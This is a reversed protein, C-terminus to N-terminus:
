SELGKRRKYDDWRACATAIDKQQRTKTGGALLLILTPGDFGFYIRYGPGFDIRHELVGAGVSKANSLNGQSLRTLAMTVRSAAPANLRKFWRGFPSAGSEDLYERVEIM